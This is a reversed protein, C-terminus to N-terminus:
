RYAAPDLHFRHLLRHVQARSTGLERAVAALNGGHHRLSAILSDRKEEAPPEPAPRPVPVTVTEPLHELDIAAGPSLAAAAAIAQDLERINLPWPARCLARAAPMTFHLARGPAHRALSAAVLAGLDEIRERLPPLVVRLGALRALLDIRFRGADVERDLDRLTAALVRVDVRIPRTEGIPVVEREQLVRLLAGQTAPPLDAVEDLLLTGGSAARIAGLQDDVAGTFAGRRHGFLMSGALSEVIGACNVAVFPGSRGSREHIMRAAIEKGVGSEGQLLISVASPAADALRRFTSAVAPVLSPARDGALDDVADDDLDLVRARLITQGVELWADDAIPHRQVRTGDVFVGNKSGLDCVVWDGLVRQIAVHERSVRPDALDVRLVGRARRAARESGRGIVVRDVGRLLHRAGPGPAAADLVVFLAASRERGDRSRTPQNTQTDTMM